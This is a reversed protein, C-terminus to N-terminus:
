GQDFVALNDLGGQGGENLKRFCLETADGAAMFQMDAALWMPDANGPTTMLLQGDVLVEFSASPTGGFCMDVATYDFSIAYVHGAITPITQGIGEGPFARAYRAGDTGVVPSAMCSDPVADVGIGGNSCNTWEDPTTNPVMAMMWDEVSPNKLLNVPVVGSSSGESSEEGSSGDGTSTGTGESSSSGEGSSTGDGSSSSTGEGSSSSSSSTGSTTPVGTTAGDTASAAMTGGSTSADTEPGTATAGTPSDGSSSSAPEGTSSTSAGGAGDDGCGGLTLAAAFLTILTCRVM